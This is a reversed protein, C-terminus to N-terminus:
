VRVKQSYGWSSLSFCSFGKTVGLTKDKVAPTMRSRGPDVPPGRPRRLCKSRQRRHENRKRETFHAAPGSRDCMVIVGRNGQTKRLDNVGTERLYQTYEDARALDMRGHWTRAIMTHDELGSVRRKGSPERMIGVSVLIHCRAAREM